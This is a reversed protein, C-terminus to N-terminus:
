LCENSGHPLISCPWVESIFFIYCEKLVVLVLFLCVSLTTALQPSGSSFFPSLFFPQKYWIVSMYLIRFPEDSKWLTVSIWRQRINCKWLFERLINEFIMEYWAAADFMVLVTSGGGQPPLYMVEMRRSVCFTKPTFCFADGYCIWGVYSKM